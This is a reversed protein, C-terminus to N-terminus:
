INEPAIFLKYNYGGVYGTDANLFYLSNINLGNYMNSVIFWNEGCNTTKMIEGYLATIYGTTNNVFQVNKFYLSYYATDANWSLGSDTTKLIIFDGVVFGTDRNIFQVSYLDSATNYSQDIWNLGGDTTKRIRGNYGVIFGTLDDTFYVGYFFAYIGSNLTLWNQGSDTTKLIVNYEGVAYGTNLSPFYIKKLPSTTGSSQSVWGAQSFCANSLIFFLIVNLVVKLPIM